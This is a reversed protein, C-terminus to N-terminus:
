RGQPDHSRDSSGMADQKLFRWLVINYATLTTAAIAVVIINTPWSLVFLLAICLVTEVVGGGVCFVRAIRLSKDPSRNSTRAM